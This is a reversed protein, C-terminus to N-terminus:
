CYKNKYVLAKQLQKAWIINRVWFVVTIMTYSSLFRYVPVIIFKICSRYVLLDILESKEREIANINWLSGWRKVWEDNLLDTNTIRLRVTAFEKNIKKGINDYMEQIKIEVTEYNFFIGNNMIMAERCPINKLYVMYPVSDVSFLTIVQQFKISISNSYTTIVLTVKSYKVNDKSKIIIFRNDDKSDSIKYPLSLEYELCDSVPEFTKECKKDFYNNHSLVYAKAFLVKSSVGLIKKIGEQLVNLFIGFLTSKM